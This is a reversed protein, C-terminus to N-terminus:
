HSVEYKTIKTGLEDRLAVLEEDQLTERKKKEEKKAAARKAAIAAM